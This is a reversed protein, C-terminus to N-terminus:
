PTKMQVSARIAEIEKLLPEIAEEAENRIQAETKTAIMDEASIDAQVKAVIVEGFMLSRARKRLHEAMRESDAIGEIKWEYGIRYERDGLGIKECVCDRSLVLFLGMNM